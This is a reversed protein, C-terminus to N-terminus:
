KKRVPIWIEGYYNEDEVGNPYKTPDEYMEINYGEAIEYNKNNPLWETFIKENIEQITKASPGVCPFVAWTHKPIVRTIFGEPVELTPIYNDAIMYSFENGGMELDMNIGYLGCVVRDKGSNFYEQWLKPVDVAASEYKFTRSLGMVTFADKDIIKYDMTYGGKLSFKVKLPAFSKVLAGEKRVATPTVNHFRLFAKTFSDPSDYGYKLAIDIIKQESYILDNGALSLRRKRIYEAVTFGCLMAFGRQFYFPSICVHKAIDDVTLDETLNKEIYTIAESISEMWGM